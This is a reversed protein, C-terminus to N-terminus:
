VLKKVSVFNFYRLLDMLFSDDWALANKAAPNVHAIFLFTKVIASMISLYPENESV